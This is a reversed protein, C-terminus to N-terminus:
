QNQKAWVGGQLWINTQINLLFHQHMVHPQLCHHKCLTPCITSNPKLNHNEKRKKQYLYNKKIGTYVSLFFSFFCCAEQKFKQAM